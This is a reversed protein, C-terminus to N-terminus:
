ALETDLSIPDSELAVRGNDALNALTREANGDPLFITISDKAADAVAGFARDVAPRLKADRTGVLMIQPGHLFEVLKDPIM